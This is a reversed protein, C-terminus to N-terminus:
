PVNSGRRGLALSLVFLVLFVIFLIRAVDSSGEAMGTFGFIAAVLSIVLFVASWYLM